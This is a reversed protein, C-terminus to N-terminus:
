GCSGTAAASACSLWAQMDTSIDSSGGAAHLAPPSLISGPQGHVPRTSGSSGVGRLCTVHATCPMPTPATPCSMFRFTAM